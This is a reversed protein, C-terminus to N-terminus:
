LYNYPRNCLFQDIRERSYLSYIGRCCNDCKSSLFAAFSETSDIKSFFAKDEEKLYSPICDNFYFKGVNRGYSLAEYLVTSNVGVVYKFKKLVIAINIKNDQVSMNDFSEIINLSHTSLRELPHHRFYFHSEPFTVALNAVFDVIEDSYDGEPLILVDKDSVKLNFDIKKVYEDLAWGINVMRTEDIGYVGKPNNDGYELFYDPTFFSNRVIPYNLGATYVIGHQFEFVRVGSLRCAPIFPMFHGRSPAWFNHVGMKKLLIAYFRSRNFFLLASQLINNKNYELGPFVYEVSKWLENFSECRYQYYFDYQIRSKLLALINIFYIPLVNRSHVRSKLSSKSCYDELIIYDDKISSNDIIPDFFKDIYYEGVKDLRFSYFCNTYKRRRGIFRLFRIVSIFLFRLKDLWSYHPLQHIIPTGFQKIYLLGLERRILGYIPIGKFLFSYCDIETERQAIDKFLEFDDKM